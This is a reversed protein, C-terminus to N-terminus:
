LVSKERAHPPTNLFKLKKQSEPSFIHATKDKLHGKDTGISDELPHYRTAKREGRRAIRGHDALTTLRRQLTKNSIPFHINKSIQSRSLGAPYKGLLTIIAANQQEIESTM